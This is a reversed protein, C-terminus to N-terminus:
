TSSADFGEPLETVLLTPRSSGVPGARREVDKCHEAWRMACVGRYCILRMGRLLPEGCMRCNGHDRPATAELFRTIVEDKSLASPAPRVCAWYSELDDSM